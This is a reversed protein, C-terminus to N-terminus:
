PLPAFFSLQSPKLMIFFDNGDRRFFPDRFPDDDDDDRDFWSRRERDNFFPSDFPNEKSDFPDQNMEENLKNINKNVDDSFSDSDWDEDNSGTSVSSAIHLYTFFVCFGLIRLRMKKAKFIDHM